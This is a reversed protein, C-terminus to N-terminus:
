SVRGVHLLQNVGLNGNTFLHLVEQSCTIQYGSGIKIKHLSSTVGDNSVLKIVVSVKRM